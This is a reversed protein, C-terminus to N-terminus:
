GRHQQRKGHPAHFLNTRPSTLFYGKNSTNGMYRCVRESAVCHLGGVCRTEATEVNLGPASVSSGEGDHLVAPDTEWAALLCLQSFLSKLWHNPTYFYM